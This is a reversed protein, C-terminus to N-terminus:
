LRRGMCGQKRLNGQAPRKELYGDYGGNEAYRRIESRCSLICPEKDGVRKKVCAEVCGVVDRIGSQRRENGFIIVLAYLHAGDAKHESEAGTHQDLRDSDTQDGIESASSSCPTGNRDNVGDSNLLASISTMGELIDSTAFRKEEKLM